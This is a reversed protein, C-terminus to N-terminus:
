EDRLANVSALSIPNGGHRRTLVPVGNRVRGSHSAQGDDALAKRVLISLMQGTSIGKAAALEKAAQLVDMDLDMTTRM